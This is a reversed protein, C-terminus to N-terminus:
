QVDEFYTLMEEAMHWFDEASILPSGDENQIVTGDPYEEMTAWLALTMKDLLRHAKIQEESMPKKSTYRENLLEPNNNKM